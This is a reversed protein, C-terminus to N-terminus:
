NYFYGDSTQKFLPIMWSITIGYLLDLRQKDDEKGMLDYQYNRRPKTLAQIFEFGLNFSYAKKNGIHFYGLQEKLCFGNTLRDYGKKYEKTFYSVTNDSNVMSIKHQLVGAGISFWVGSNHNPGIIPFLKGISIISNFGREYFFVETYLGDGDIIFEDSTSLHQIYQRENKIVNGFIYGYDLGFIFNNKNKYMLGTGATFNYGFRDSLKGGPIHNGYKINILFGSVISDKTSVQSFSNTSTLCFVFLLIISLTNLKKTFNM